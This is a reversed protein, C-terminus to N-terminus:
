PFEPWDWDLGMEKLRVGIARLDWVHIAKSYNAAAVLKDGAPTFKMWTARSGSPDELKAVTRGTKSDKLHILGPAMELAMLVGDSTFVVQTPYLPEDCPVSLGERGSAVDWFEFREGTSLILTRSDPAFSVRVGPAPWERVLEGTGVNWLCVNDAHWGATALWRGDPSLALFGSMRHPKFPDQVLGTKLDLLLAGGGKESVVALKRGDRSRDIRTPVFPLDMKVAPGFRLGPFTPSEELIPWRYLGRDGCTFLERGEPQFLSSASRGVPLFALERGDSIEWVRVGDEMALALFRGDSSIDGDRYEDRGAGLSSVITRYEPFTAVEVLHGKEGNSIGGLWRGDLSFGFATWLRPFQM